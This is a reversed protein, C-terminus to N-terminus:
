SGAGELLGTGPRTPAHALGQVIARGEVRRRVRESKAKWKKDPHCVGCRPRGCGLLSRSRLQGLMRPTCPVSRAALALLAQRRRNRVANTRARREARTM